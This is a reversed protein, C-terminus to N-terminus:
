QTFTGLLTPNTTVNPLAQLMLPAIFNHFAIASAMSNGAASVWTGVTVQTGDVTGQVTMTDGIIQINQIVYTHAM